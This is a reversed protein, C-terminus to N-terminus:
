PVTLFIHGKYKMLALYHPSCRQKPSIQNNFLQNNNLIDFFNNQMTLYVSYFNDANHTIIFIVNANACSNKFSLICARIYVGSVDVIDLHM